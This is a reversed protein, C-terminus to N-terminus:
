PGRSQKRAPDELLRQVFQIEERVGELSRNLQDIEEELVEVKRTLERLEPGAGARGAGDGPDFRRALSRGLPSDLFIATLTILIGGGLIAILVPVWM